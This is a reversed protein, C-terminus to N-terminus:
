AVGIDQESAEPRLWYAHERGDVEHRAPRVV